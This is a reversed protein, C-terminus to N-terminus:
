GQYSDDIGGFKKDIVYVMVGAVILSALIAIVYAIM